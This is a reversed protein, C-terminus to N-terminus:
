LQLLSVVRVKVRVVTVNGKSPWLKRGQLVVKLSFLVSVKLTDFGVTISVAQAVGRVQVM